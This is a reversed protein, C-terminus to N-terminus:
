EIVLKGTGLANAGSLQYYYIGSPLEKRHITLVNDRIDGYRQVIQGVSNYLDLSYVDAGPNYFSLRTTQNFPNPEVKVDINVTPEDTDVTLLCAGDIRTVTQQYDQNVIDVISSICILTDTYDSYYLRVLPQAVDSKLILSDEYSIGIAMGDLLNVKPTIPYEESAVLNEASILSLGSVHFQYAVVSASPNRIAIDIYQEGPDYDMISLSVTDMPNLVGQPFDCHDHNGGGLHEHIAGYNLCSALLSADYVTIAEDANLDNCPTAAINYTLIEDVYQQADIMEQAGSADLDGMLATGGCNGTCDPQANGYPTGECDVFDPCDEVLEFELSGSSRDLSICVQAWNNLTDTEVRGLADPANDWNVRTVFTYIGDEVDTVDIWQCELSSSYIDGCGASIGMYSCGYQPSGGNDCTLDLVCFGNKFGIPLAVGDADFLVYEAYGDYHYHNHCNDYTFQDGNDNPEGIFYDAEGNNEIHTTFRIIDRLGFGQLCGENILCEDTANLTTLYISTELIDQRLVLDPAAPCDPDGWEICSGDDISALPNYNCSTPTTCGSIPGLYDINFHILGGECSNDADGIRIIYTTGAAFFGEVVAQEGCSPNNDNYFLTGENSDDFTGFCDDYVWIKTDCSNSDCTSILYIGVSDPTFAYWDNTGSTVYSGEEVEIASSCVSGPPCNFNVLVESSFDPGGMAIIEGDVTVVYGDNNLIGDGYSDELIFSICSNAPVCVEQEYTSNNGYTNTEVEHYVTGDAGVLQWSTEYGWNDTHISIIVTSEDDECVAWLSNTFLLCFLFLYLSTRM